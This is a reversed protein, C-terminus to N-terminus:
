TGLGSPRQRHADLDARKNKGSVLKALGCNGHRVHKESSFRAGRLPLCQHSGNNGHRALYLLSPASAVGRPADNLITGAPGSAGIDCRAM